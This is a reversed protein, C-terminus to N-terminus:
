ASIAAAAILVFILPETLLKLFRRWGSTGRRATVRNPGVEKQGRAVEDLAVGASLDAGLFQVTEKIPFHHCPKNKPDNM